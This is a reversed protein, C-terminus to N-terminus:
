ADLVDLTGNRGTAISAHCTGGTAGQMVQPMADWLANQLDSGAPDWDGDLFQGLVDDGPNNQCFDTEIGDLLLSATVTMLAHLQGVTLTVPLNQNIHM